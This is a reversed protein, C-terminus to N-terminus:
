AAFTLKASLTITTMIVEPNISILKRKIPNDILAPISLDHTGYVEGADEDIVELNVKATEENEWQAPDSQFKFVFGEEYTPHQSNKKTDTVKLEKGNAKVKVRVKDPIGNDNATSVLNNCSYIFLTLVVMKPEAVPTLSLPMWKTAVNLQGSVEDAYQSNELADDELTLTAETEERTVNDVSTVAKGLFDDKSFSDHDYAIFNVKHGESREMLFYYWQDEPWVPDADNNIHPTEQEEAGVKVVVYPDPKGQGILSRLGGKQPLGNASVVKVALVGKPDFCKVDMPDAGDSIPVFVKNPFVMQESADKVIAKRIKRRLFSWDCIDALGELDFDVAMDDLFCFQIGGFFPPKKTTPKLVIRARGSVKLDRVGSPVGMIKVQINSDGEYELDFDIIISKPSTGDEGKSRLTSVNSIKPKVEGFDLEEINFATSSLKNGDSTSSNKELSGQVAPEVRGRIADKAFSSINPTLQTIATQAWEDDSSVSNGM